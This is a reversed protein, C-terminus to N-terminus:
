ARNLKEPNPFEPRDEEGIPQGAALREEVMAKAKAEQELHIQEEMERLTQPREGSLALARKPKNDYHCPETFNQLHKMTTACLAHGLAPAGSPMFAKITLFRTGEVALIELCRGDDTYEVTVKPM